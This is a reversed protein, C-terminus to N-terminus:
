VHMCVYRCVHVCVYMYQNMCDNMRQIRETKGQILTDLATCHRMIVYERASGGPDFLFSIIVLTFLCPDQDGLWGSVLPYVLM